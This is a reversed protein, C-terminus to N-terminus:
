KGKDSSAIEASELQRFASRPNKRNEHHVWNKHSAGQLAEPLYPAWEQQVLQYNGPDAVRQAQVDIDSGQWDILGKHAVPCFAVDTLFSRLPRRTM